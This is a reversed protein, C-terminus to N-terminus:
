HRKIYSNDHHEFEEFIITNDKIRFILVFSGIHARKFKSMPSRLNKFHQISNEDSSAIQIIKKKVANYTAKDKRKLYTLKKKLEDSFMIQFNM